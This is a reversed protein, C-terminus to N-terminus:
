KSIREITNCKDENILFAEISWYDRANSVYQIGDKLSNNDIGLPICNGWVKAYLGGDLYKGGSNGCKCKREECDLKVIDQCDTCLILKM